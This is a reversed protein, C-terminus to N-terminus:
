KVYRISFENTDVRDWHEPNERDGYIRLAWVSLKYRGAPAWTGDTMAGTWFVYTDFIPNQWRAPFHNWVDYVPGLTEIGLWNEKPEPKPGSCSPKLPVAEVTVEPSGMGLIIDVWPEFGPPLANYKLPEKAWEPHDAPAHLQFISDAIISSNYSDHIPKQVIAAQMSGAAGLYPLSTSIEDTGNITIWGSYIPLVDPDLGETPTVSVTVEGSEGPGLSLAPPDFTLSAHEKRLIPTMAQFIDGEVLTEFTLAPVHSINYDASSEGSNTITFTTRPSFFATDNLALSEKDLRTTAFAADYAQIIGAGQQAVPALGPYAVPVFDWGDREYTYGVNPAATSTLLKAMLSPDNTGRVQAILAVVAGVLPTSMSTGSAVLYGGEAGESLARPYTSLIEGGPGGVQPKLKLDFTPGWSSFESPKGGQLWSEVTLEGTEEDYYPLEGNDFSSVSIVGDGTSPAAVTFTGWGGSNGAAFVCPVGAKTIRSVAVAWPDQSWGSYAGLSGMIVDNGDDFAKYIGATIIDISSGWCSFVKYMGVQADPAAGIFGYPNKQAAAIGAVHTGHGGCDDYPDDDPVPVQDDDTEMYNNGAIDYGHTVLCGPGFCGGLAPHLYDIGDDVIAIRMGQGTINLAHLKDIQTMIHPTYGGEAARRKLSEHDNQTAKSPILKPHPIRRNPWVNRVRPLQAIRAMQEDNEDDVIPGDIKVSVGKFISSNINLNVRVDGPAIESVASLIEDSDLDPDIEIIYSGPIINEDEHRAAVARSRHQSLKTSKASVATALHLAVIFRQLRM